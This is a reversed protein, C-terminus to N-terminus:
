SIIKAKRTKEVTQHRLLAQMASDERAERDKSRLEEQRHFRARGQQLRTEADQAVLVKMAYSLWQIPRRRPWGIEVISSREISLLEGARGLRM